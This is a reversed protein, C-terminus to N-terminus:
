SLSSPISSASSVPFNTLLDSEERLVVGEDGNVLVVDGTRLVRTAGEANVVTPVGYERAVIAAHSLVGGLETVVAAALLFLPTWGVDTAHVVLVEGPEFLKMDEARHLVRVRGRVAGPCGSLGRLVLAGSPVTLGPPPAGTFTSPPEPRQTNRLYQAYRTRVTGALDRRSGSLIALLEEIEFLFVPELPHAWGRLQPDRAALRHNAELALVRIMGLVRTVWARTRERHQASSQARQVLSRLLAREPPLLAARVEVLSAEREAHVRAASGQSKRLVDSAGLEGTRLAARLVDWVPTCDERWRTTSLEAERVARDGYRDLFLTMDDRLWHTRVDRVCQPPAASIEAQAALDRGARAVMALLERGPAASELTDLGATMRQVLGDTRAGFRPWLLARLALHSGLASSACSLMLTGTRELMAQAEVLARAIGDDPLIRWDIADFDARESFAVAEFKRVRESVDWQQQALRYATLPLRVVFGLPSPRSEAATFAEGGKGGGLEVLVRPDMWPVQAAVQMFGTLNLYMRGHVNGLLTLGKPVKCGLTRFAARFGAESFAGAVSWTLPTAVGPLAEGVNANSWLTRADGGEPYPRHTIPRAQVVWLKEEHFAFEVDWAHPAHPRLKQALVALAHLDSEGLSSDGAATLSQEMVQGEPSLRWADPTRAGDVVSTGLGRAANIVSGSDGESAFMVGAARAPVLLQLVAGMRLERQGSKRAYHVWRESAVSAWVEALAEVLESGSVDLVTGAMGAMSHEAGDEGLASSRVAWRAERHAGGLSSLAALLQGSPRYARIRDSAESVRRGLEADSRISLLSAPRLASPLSALCADFATAPVVWGAPVDFGKSILWALRAAKGGVHRRVSPAVEGLGYIWPAFQGASTPTSHM